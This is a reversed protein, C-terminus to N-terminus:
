GKAQSILTKIEKIENISLDSMIVIRISIIPQGM